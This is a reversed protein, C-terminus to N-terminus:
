TDSSTSPIAPQQPRRIAAPQRTRDGRERDMDLVLGSWTFGKAGYGEGTFPNYYERFASKEILAVTARYLDDAEREFGKASLCRFLFWNIVPWTPGRWLAFTEGPCFSPESMAVSPIPYPSAFKDPARLHRSVLERAVAAPTEPLLLPFFSMATLVKLHGSSGVQLDYFAATNDDYMLRLIASGVREASRLYIGAREPLDVMTCLEALARLDCAYITNYAVEKVLFAGRKRIRGLDYKRVFNSADVKLMVRWYLASSFLRSPTVRSRYGVVDDFSPKWDLGSEFPSIISILGDGDFDRNQALWDHYRVVKPLMELLFLKDGSAEYLRKLAQAILPPQTLASMHPRLAQLTPRAQLVDTVRKPLVQKWFIMHGVFGDDEQQRFLSRLNRKALEVEAIACLIFVHFCTDWFWQFQYREKSPMVYCYHAGLLASYGETVNDLMVARVRERLEDQTM